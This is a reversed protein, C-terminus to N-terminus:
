IIPLNLLGFPLMSFIPAFLSAVLSMVCILTNMSPGATDKFPDGVTDGTIAAKHADSGKGGFNGDEIYKKANDWTGGANAMLLALMLGSVISGALYGALAQPGLLFGVGLTSAIAIISPPLLEHLAGKTAIDICANYDADETGALIGPREKFQRRIEVIMKEATNGVGMILLASFLAPIMSGLLIGAMIGPSLVNLKTFLDIVAQSYGLEALNKKVIELYAVLLAIVTLAAAGVSFGKTIAKATNGASDMTSCNQLAQEGIKANEAINAANDVIPGYADNAVVLGTISLMGVAAVAICYLGTEIANATGGIPFNYGALFAVLMAVAIGLVSPIVSLLGYAFGSLIVTAHGTKAAEAVKRAPAFRKGETATFFDSVIGIIVGAALGVAAAIFVAWNGGTFILTLLSLGVFIATTRYTGNNLAKGPFEGEKVKVFFSSIISAVNGLGSLFLPMLTFIFSGNALAEDLVIGLICAAIMSAVYSDYIDAGMGAVDGVNDGVADAVAAPNRADDEPINQEVKGVIDAGVDAAKTFLGGGAKAFLAISSAGFSYGVLIEFVINMNVPAAEPPFVAGAIYYLASIGTLAFGVVLSGMVSGATYAVKFGENLGKIAANASRSNAKTSVGMGFIGAFSSLVSGTIYAVATLIGQPWSNTTLGFVLLLVVAFCGCFIFLTRYQRKIFTKAGAAILGSFKEMTENGPPAQLVRKMAMYALIISIVGTIPALIEIGVTVM